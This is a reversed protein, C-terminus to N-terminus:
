RRKHFVASNGCNAPRQASTRRFIGREKRTAPYHPAEVKGARKLNARTPTFEMCGSQGAESPKVRHHTEIPASSYHGFTRGWPDTNIYGGGGGGTVFTKVTKEVKLVVVPWLDFEVRHSGPGFVRPCVFSPPPGPSAPPPAPQAPVPVSVPLPVPALPPAGAPALPALVTRDLSPVPSEGRGRLGPRTSRPFPGHRNTFVDRLLDCQRQREAPSSRHRPHTYAVAWGAHHDAQRAARSAAPDAAAAAAYAAHGEATHISPLRSVAQLASARADALEERTVRDDAYREAVLVAQRSREATLLPWRQLFSSVTVPAEIQLVRDLDGVDIGLEVASTAVIVWDRGQAFAREAQRREDLSLSSHSV